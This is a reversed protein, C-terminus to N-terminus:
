ASSSYEECAKLISKTNKALFFGGRVYPIMMGPVAGLMWSVLNLFYEQLLLPIAGSAFYAALTVLPVVVRGHGQSQDIGFMEWLRFLRDLVNWLLGGGGVVLCYWFFSRAPSETLTRALDFFWGGGIGGGLALVYRAWWFREITKREAFLDVAKQVFRTDEPTM